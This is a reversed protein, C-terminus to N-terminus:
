APTLDDDLRSHSFLTEQLKKSAKYIGIKDQADAFKVLM